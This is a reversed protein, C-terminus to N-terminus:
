MGFTLEEAGALLILRKIDDLYRQPTRNPPPPPHTHSGISYFFIYPTISLDNPVFIRFKVECPRNVWEGPGQPHTVGLVYLAHILIM